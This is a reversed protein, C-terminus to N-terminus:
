VHDVRGRFDGWVCQIASLTALGATETRLIRPGLRVSVFGALEALQIEDPALGGEAGILVEVGGGSLPPTIDNLTQESGPDLMLRLVGGPVPKGLWHGLNELASVEPLRNRGCQECAAVVINRWHGVRREAREGELRVVSRRSAVPVIRTVGLEVAKQVTMDMKEGSQLAQVLTIELPSEREIDRWNQVDVTVRDRGVESICCGYEGGVGDFLVLEDGVRLRLVRCAHRAANDPLDLSLGPSLPLACFFRHSSM